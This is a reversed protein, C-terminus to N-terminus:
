ALRRRRRATLLLGAIGLLALSNPEPIVRVDDIALEQGGLSFQNITGTVSVFGENSGPFTESASISFQANAFGDTDIFDDTNFLMGNVTLNINGGSEAYAFGVIQAGGALGVDLNVNGMTMGNGAGAQTPNSVTTSGGSFIDGNSFIYDVVTFDVGNSTFMDGNNYVTNVVLDEFDATVADASNMSVTVLIISLLCHNLINNQYM